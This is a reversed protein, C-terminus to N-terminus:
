EFLVGGPCGEGWHVYLQRIRDQQEVVASRPRLVECGGLPLVAAKFRGAAVLNWPCFTCLTCPRGWCLHKPFVSEGAGEEVLGM